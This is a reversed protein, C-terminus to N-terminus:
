PLYGFGSPLFKFYGHRSSVRFNLFLAVRVREIGPFDMGSGDSYQVPNIAEYIGIKIIPEGYFAALM